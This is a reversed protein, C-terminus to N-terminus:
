KERRMRWYYWGLLGLGAGLADWMVDISSATRGPVFSQHFEDAVGFLTALLWAAPYAWRHRAIAIRIVIALIAFELVHAGKRLIIEVVHVQSESLGLHGLLLETNADTAWPSATVLYILLVIGAGIVWWWFKKM